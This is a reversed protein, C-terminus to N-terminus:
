QPFAFTTVSLLESACSTPIWMMIGVKEENAVVSGTLDICGTEIPFEGPGSATVAHEQVKMDLGGRTHLLLRPKVRRGADHVRSM